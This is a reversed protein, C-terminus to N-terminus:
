PAAGGDRLTTAEQTAVERGRRQRGYAAAVRGAARGAGGWGVRRRVCRTDLANPLRWQRDRQWEGGGGHARGVRGSGWEAEESEEVGM